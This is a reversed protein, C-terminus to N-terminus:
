PLMRRKSARSSGMRNMRLIHSASIEPKLVALLAAVMGMVM